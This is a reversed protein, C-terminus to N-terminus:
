YTKTRTSFGSYYARPPLCRIKLTMKLKLCQLTQIELDLHLILGSASAEVGMIETDGVAEGGGAWGGKWRKELGLGVVMEGKEGERARRTNILWVSCTM